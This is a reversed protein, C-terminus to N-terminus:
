REQRIQKEQRTKIVVVVVEVEMVVVVFEVVEVVV